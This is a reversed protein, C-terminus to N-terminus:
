FQIKLSQHEYILTRNWSGVAEGVGHGLKVLVVHFDRKEWLGSFGVQLTGLSLTRGGEDWYLPVRAFKGEEYSYTIGDDEYLDFSADAGSYIRLEIPSNPDQGSYEQVNTLPIISGARVYLPMVPLPTNRVVSKGGDLRQGTWFDFWDAGTPLYVIRSTAGGATVPAVLLSPGLMFEDGIDLAKPDNRFDFALARMPTYAEFTTRAALSYIYPLMRYRLRDYLTLISQAQAGYSWLENEKRHGHTRFIPCFTGFQFWRLFLERYAPDDPNGGLFGGIDTTWYPLGSMCYNLGATIERRLTEFTPTTDGSWVAAAKRQAGTFASRSLIFVRKRSTSSRQGDYISSAMMLPYMNQYRSGNGLATHADELPSERENCGPFVPEDSDLWFADVGIDLLNTKIRGWDLKRAGASFEDAIRVDPFYSQLRSGSIFYNNGLMEDFATSGAEFWPKISIMLHVHKDHLAQIMLEPNPFSHNFKRSGIKTQWGFDLVIVDLPIHLARCKSAIDLLESQTRYRDKSQFFGYAWLPFLPVSGTLTRYGAIIQDFSPGYIFFYDVADSFKSTIGLQPQFENNWDTVSTNNWLIGYGESSLFFPVSINTNDQALEYRLYRQSLIGNQHQGLGYIRERPNLWFWVSAEYAPKGKSTVPTMIRPFPSDTESLLMRSGHDKFHVAGSLRDVSIILSSTLLDVSHQAERVRFSTPPWVDSVLTPNSLNPITEAPTFTVRVTNEACPLIRLLGNALRLHLGDTTKSVAQISSERAPQLANENPQAQEKAPSGALKSTFNSSTGEPTHHEFLREGLAFELSAPVALATGLSLFTRRTIRSM